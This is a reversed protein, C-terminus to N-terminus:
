TTNVAPPHNVLLRKHIQVQLQVLLHPLHGPHLNPLRPAQLTLLAQMQTHPTKLTKWDQLTPILSQHPPLLQLPPPHMHLHNITM